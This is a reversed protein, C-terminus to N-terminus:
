WLGGIFGGEGGGGLLVGVQMPQKRGRDIVGGRDGEWIGLAAEVASAHRLVDDAVM